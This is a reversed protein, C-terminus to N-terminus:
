KKKENRALKLFEEETPTHGYLEKHIADICDRMQALTSDARENEAKMEADSMKNENLKEGCGLDAGASAPVRCDVGDSTIRGGNEVSVGTGGGAGEDLVM